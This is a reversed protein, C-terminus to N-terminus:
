NLSISVMVTYAIDILEKETIKYNNYVGQEALQKDWFLNVVKVKFEDGAKKGNDEVMVEILDIFKRAVKRSDFMNVGVSKIDSM